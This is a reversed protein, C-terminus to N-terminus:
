DEFAQFNVPVNEEPVQATELARAKTKTASRLSCECISLLHEPTFSGRRWSSEPELTITVYWGLTRDYLSSTMVGFLDHGKIELSIPSGLRPRQDLLVVARNMSIEELNGHVQFFEGPLDEYMVTVLESCLYRCSHAM